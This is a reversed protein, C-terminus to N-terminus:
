LQEINHIISRGKAFLSFNAFCFLSGIKAQAFRIAVVVSSNTSRWVWETNKGDKVMSSAVMTGNPYWTTCQGELKGNKYMAELQMKGNAHWTTYKGELKGNKYEGKSKMHGNKHWDISEGERKGGKYTIKSLKQGDVHWEMWEGDIETQLELYFPVEMTKYYHIGATHVENVNTDFDEVKIIKGKIYEIKEDAYISNRISRRTKQNFKHIINVVLLKNARFTACNANAVSRSENTITDPLKQLVVIWYHFCSTFVYLPNNYKAVFSDLKEM